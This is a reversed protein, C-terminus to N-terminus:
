VTPGTSDHDSRARESRSRFATGIIAPETPGSRNANGEPRRPMALAGRSAPTSPGLHPKFAVFPRLSSRDAGRRLGGSGPGEGRVASVIVPIRRPVPTRRPCLRSTARLRSHGCSSYPRSRRSHAWGEHAGERRRPLWGTQLPRSRSEDDNVRSDERSPAGLRMKSPPLGPAASASAPRTEGASASAADLPLSASASASAAPVSASAVTVEGPLSAAGVVPGSAVEGTSSAATAAGPASAV